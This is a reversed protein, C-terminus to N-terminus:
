VHFCVTLVGGQFFLSDDLRGMDFSYYRLQNFWAQAEYGLRVVLNSQNFVGEWEMGLYGRVMTSVTSLSDNQITIFVPTNNQYVDTLKWHGWLFAGSVDGKLNLAHKPTEFLHWNTDLGFSPGIGRFDNTVTENALSFTTIPLKTANNFPQQWNSRISQNIVGAKIGAFPRLNLLNDVAISRGVELDITNFLIKWQISAQHYYPGSVGAGTLNEAFFNGLFASHIEGTNIQVQNNGETQYGTYYFRIDWPIVVNNYGVGVRVGPNWNFPVNLFQVQQTTGTPGLIQGWNDDSVETVQWILLEAFVSPVQNSYQVGFIQSSFWLLAFLFGQKM